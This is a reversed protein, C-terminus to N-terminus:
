ENKKTARLCLVEVKGDPYEVTVTPPKECEKESAVKDVIKFAGDEDCSAAVVSKNDGEKICEGVAFDPTRGFVWWLGAGALILALVVGVILLIWGLRQSGGGGKKSSGGPPVPTGPQGYGVAPQEGTQGPQPYGAPASGAASQGAGPQGSAGTPSLSPESASPTTAWGGTDATPTAGFAPIRATADVTRDESSEPGAYASPADM